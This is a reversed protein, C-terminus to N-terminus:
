NPRVANSTVPFDRSSTSGVLYVEGYPGTAVSRILDEGSSGLFTAYVVKSGDPSLVAVVGDGNRSRKASRSAIQLADPTIPFDLSSTQGVIFINGESDPTPMLFFEGGTGGLLGSFAFSKGNSSLKAIFGDNKGKLVRQVAGLTTPFDPSSSVGTLVLAGEPGLWPRHEAFENEVGGLYTAYAIEYRTNKSTQPEIANALGMLPWVAILCSLLWVQKSIRVM